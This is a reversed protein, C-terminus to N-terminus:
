LLKVGHPYGMYDWFPVPSAANLDLVIKTCNLRRGIRERMEVLRRGYGHGQFAKMDILGDILARQECDYTFSFRPGSREAVICPTAGLVIEIGYSDPSQEGTPLVQSFCPDVSVVYSFPLVEKLFEQLVIERVV